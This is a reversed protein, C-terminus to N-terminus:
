DLELEAQKLLKSLAVGKMAAARQLIKIGRKRLRRYNDEIEEPRTIWYYGKGTSSGIPQHYLYVLDRVIQRIRREHYGTQEKLERNLVPKAQDHASILKLIVEHQPPMRNIIETMSQM